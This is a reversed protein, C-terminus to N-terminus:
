VCVPNLMKLQFAILVLDILVCAFVFLAYVERIVFNFSKLM